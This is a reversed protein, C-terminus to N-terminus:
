KGREERVLRGFHGIMQVLFRRVVAEDEKDVFDFAKRRRPRGSSRLQTATHPPTRYSRRM